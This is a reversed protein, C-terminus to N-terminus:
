LRSRRIIALDGDSLMRADDGAGRRLLARVVRGQCQLMLVCSCRRDQVLFQPLLVSTHKHERARQVRVRASETANLKKRYNHEWDRM